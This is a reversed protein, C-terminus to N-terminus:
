YKRKRGHIKISGTKSEHKIEKIEYQPYKYEFLKKKLAYVDTKFGKVDEIIIKNDEVSFYSFDAIYVTKRYTKGNKRFTPILDFQPQLKLDKILGVDQMLKLENYRKAEAKSDFKIGDVTVKTSHYKSM